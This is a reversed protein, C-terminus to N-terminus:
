CSPDGTVPQGVCSKTMSKMGISLGFIMLHMHRKHQRVQANKCMHM